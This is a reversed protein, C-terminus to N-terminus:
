CLKLRNKIKRIVKGLFYNIKIKTLHFHKQILNQNTLQYYYNQFYQLIEKNLMFSLFPSRTCGAWHILGKDCTKNLVDILKINNAAYSNAWVMFNFEGLKISGDRQLTPLLYNYVSQDVLPFLKTNKWYPYASHDFHLNFISIPVSGTTLFIQGANFFYGPYKYEPYTEEIAKVDFYVDKVWSAYPDSEYEANIIYDFNDFHELVSKLFPSVFIIDSDLVLLKHNKPFKYHLHFKAASWGMKTIGFDLLEVNLRKELLYTDFQGNILDKVLYIKIEPYFYRISAICIFTLYYDSKNSCVVINLDRIKM